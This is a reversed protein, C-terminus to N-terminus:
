ARARTTAIDIENGAADALTWWSPAFRDSVMRGGAALAAVIRSDAQEYPVWVVLHIAGLGGPRAEEMKEFFFAPSRGHPDILDEDPSDPRPEYGLAARWFRMIAATDTAGPIILVNQLVSPDAALGLDRAVESISRALEIHSRNLGFYRDNMAVLRITVGDQRMDVDPVIAGIDPLESLAQVFRAASAFSPTPYFACAGEGLVRWDDLGDSEQFHKPTVYDNM